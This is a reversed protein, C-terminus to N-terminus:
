IVDRSIARGQAVVLINQLGLFYRSKVAPVSSRRLYVLCAVCLVCPRNHLCLAVLVALHFAGLNEHAAQSPPIVVHSAPILCRCGVKTSFAAGRRKGRLDSMPLPNGDPINHLCCILRM